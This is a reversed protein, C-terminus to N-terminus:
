LHHSNCRIPVTNNSNATSLFRWRNPNHCGRGGGVVCSDGSNNDDNWIEKCHDHHTVDVNDGDVANGDFGDNSFMDLVSNIVSTTETLIQNLSDEDHHHYTTTDDDDRLLPHPHLCLKVESTLANAREMAQYKTINSCSTAYLSLSVTDVEPDEQLDLVCQIYNRSTSSVQAKRQKESPDISDSM